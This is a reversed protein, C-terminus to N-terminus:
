DEDLNSFLDDLSNDEPITIKEDAGADKKGNANQLDVECIRNATIVPYHEPRIEKTNHVEIASQKEIPCEFECAGCGICLISNVVPVDVKFYSSKKSSIAGYPCVRSCVMCKEGYSWSLCKSKNIVATGMKLYKKDSKKVKLIVGTPCVYGCANCNTLCSGIKPNFVPTFMNIIGNKYGSPQLVNSPCVNICEGCGLCRSNFREEPVSAPPRIMNESKINISKFGISPAILVGSAIMGLTHRKQLDPAIVNSSISPFFGVSNCNNKYFSCFGCLICESATTKDHNSLNIARTPCTVHCAKCSNCNKNDYERRFFSFRSLLGLFAGTPCVYQCWFRKDFLGTGFIVVVMLLAALVSNSLIVANSNFSLIPSLLITSIRTLISIPDLILPLVYGFIAFVAMLILLLYKTKQWFLSPRNKKKFNKKFLLFDSLDILSGLPCIYGCFFRGFFITSILLPLAFLIVMLNFSRSAITILFAVLPNIQLFWESNIEEVLEPRNLYFLSVFFAIIFLTQSTMRIYRLKM